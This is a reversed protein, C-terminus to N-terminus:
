LVYAYYGADYSPGALARFSTFGNSLTGDFAKPGAFGAIEYRMDDYLAMIEEATLDRDVQSHVAMDFASLFVQTLEQTANYVHKGQTLKLNVDEPLRKPPPEVSGNEMQWQQM